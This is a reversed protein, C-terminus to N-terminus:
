NCSHLGSHLIYPISVSIYSGRTAHSFNKIIMQLLNKDNEKLFGVNNVNGFGYDLSIRIIYYMQPTTTDNCVAMIWDMCEVAPLAPEEEKVCNAKVERM